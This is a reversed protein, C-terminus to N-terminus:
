ASKSVDKMLKVRAFRIALNGASRACEGQQYKAHRLINKRYKEPEVELTKIYERYDAQQRQKAFTQGKQFGNGM